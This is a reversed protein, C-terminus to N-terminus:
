TKVRYFIIEVEDDEYRVKDTLKHLFDEDYIDASSERNIIPMEDIIKDISSLNEVVDEVTYFNFLKSYGCIDTVGSGDKFKMYSRIAYGDYGGMSEFVIKGDVLKAYNFCGTKGNSLKIEFSAISKFDYEWYFNQYDMIIENKKLYDLRDRIAYNPGVLKDVLFCFLCFFALLAIFSFVIVKIKNM